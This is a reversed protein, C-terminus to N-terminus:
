WNSRRTDMQIQAYGNKSRRTDLIPDAGISLRMHGSKGLEQSHRPTFTNSLLFSTSTALPLTETQPRSLGFQNSFVSVATTSMDANTSATSLLLFTLLSSPHTICYRHKQTLDMKVEAMVTLLLVWNQTARGVDLCHPESPDASVVRVTDLATSVAHDLIDGVHTEVLRHFFAPNTSALRLFSSAPDTFSRPSLLSRLPFTPDLLQESLTTFLPSSSQSLVSILNLHRDHRFYTDSPPSSLALSSLFSDTLEPHANLFTVTHQLYQVSLNLCYTGARWHLHHHEHSLCKMLALIREVPDTYEQSIELIERFTVFSFQTELPHHPIRPLAQLCSPFNSIIIASVAEGCGIISCALLENCLIAEFPQYRTHQSEYDEVFCKRPDSFFLPRLESLSALQMLRHYNTNPPQIESLIALSDRPTSYLSKM